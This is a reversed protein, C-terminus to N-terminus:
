GTVQGSTVAITEVVTNDSTRVISINGTGKSVSEDFTLTINANQSVGTSNDAPTSSALHPPHGNVDSSAGQTIYRNSLASSELIDTDGDKDWDGVLTSQFSINTFDIGN